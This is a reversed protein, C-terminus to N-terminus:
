SYPETKKEEALNEMELCVVPILGAQSIWFFALVIDRRYAETHRLIYSYLQYIGQWTM